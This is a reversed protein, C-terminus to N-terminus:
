SSRYDKPSLGYFTKFTATFNSPTNFGVRYAVESVTLRNEELLQAAARLRSEKMFDKPSKGTLEKFRRYLHVRSMGLESSLENVNYESNPINQEIKYFVKELFERDYANIGAIKPKQAHDDGFHRRLKERSEILNRVRALLQQPYFPKEMYEDVGKDYGELKSDMDSKASLLVVPIHETKPHSKIQRCMEVGSMEPMIIDSIILDPILAHVKELGEKGNSAEETRYYKWLVRRLHTRLEEHDEVILVLPATEGIQPPNEDELGELLYLGPSDQVDQDALIEDTATVLGPAPLSIIFRSYRGYESEVHLTGHHLEVIKQCLYLGIGSSTGAVSKHVGKDTHYFHDFIHELDEAKIGTGTDFIEIKILEEDPEPSLTIIVQDFTETFKVSNSILNYFLREIKDRDFEFVCSPLETKLEIYKQEKFFLPKFAQVTENVLRVLDHRGKELQLVDMEAKRFDILLNILRLLRSSNFQILKLKYRTDNSGKFNRIIEELPSIILSLPTKFEHSINTFFQLKMNTLEVQREKEYRQIKIQQRMSIQQHLVRLTLYVGPQIRRRLNYFGVM